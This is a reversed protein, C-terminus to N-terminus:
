LNLEGAQKEKKYVLWLYFPIGLFILILGYYVAEQGSGAIMWLTYAFALVALIIAGTWGKKDHHRARITPYAAVSFLFPILVTLVSVLLLAKFQDVLSKSFNMLMFVSILASNFVIGFWPAGKKNQREFIAPFLKDKATAYSVQGQVLDWGNLCGLASIVIGASVWYSAKPGFIMVGADAFPTVSHALKAAPIMGMVAISGLMYIIATAVLGLITARSVTKEAHETSGAPITACEIGFYSFMAIAATTSIAKYLSNGSSNFTKFNKPHMYFLGCVTIVVLPAIKLVTTILQMRGGAVIGQLNIWTVVWIIALGVPVAVLPNTSIVPFFTSLASLLSIILASLAISNGLYYGWATLFGAFDGLGKHAYAYPGGTVGPLLKSLNAFVKALFYSGIAAFLWGLLSVTGFSAMVAPMMFVGVGIMNGVVLSASTWLGIKEPSKSQSM